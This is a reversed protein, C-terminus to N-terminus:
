SFIYVYWPCYYNECQEEDEGNQCDLNGDCVRKFHICYSDPCKFMNPCRWDACMHLHEGGRYVHFPFVLFRPGAKSFLLLKLSDISFSFHVAYNGAPFSFTKITSIMNWSAPTIERTACIEVDRTLNWCSLSNNWFWLM